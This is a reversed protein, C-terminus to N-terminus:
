YYLLEALRIANSPDGKDEIFWVASMILRVFTWDKIRKSSLDAKDAIKEIREIILSSSANVLENKAIFDFAAIEFEKEGIIGKPDIAIWGNQNQLINELHLDGHLLKEKQSTNLLHDKLQIAKKVLHDPIKNSKNKDIAELWSKVSNFNNKNSITRNHLKENVSLFANMVFELKNPYLSKLTIGPIAQQLLLANYESNYDYLKVAGKGDFFQLTKLEDNFVKKDCCIKVIIPVNKKNLAKVVYNYTLNKIPMIDKLFWKKKLREIIQDLKLLWNKGYEGYIINKQLNNM